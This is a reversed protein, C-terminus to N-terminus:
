YLDNLFTTIILDVASNLADGINDSTSTASDMWIVNGSKIDIFRANIGVTAITTSLYKKKRKKVTEDEELEEVTYEIVTGTLLADIKILESIKRFLDVDVDDPLSLDKAELISQLTTSEIIDYDKTILKKMFAEAVFKGSNPEDKYDVFDLVSITQILSFNYDSKKVRTIYEDDGSRKGGSACGMMITLGTIVITFLFIKKM